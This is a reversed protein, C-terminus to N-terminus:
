KIPAPKLVEEKISSGKKISIVDPYILDGETYVGIEQTKTGLKILLKVFDLNSFGEVNKRELVEISFNPVAVTSKFHNVIQENSACFMSSSMCLFIVLTKKM